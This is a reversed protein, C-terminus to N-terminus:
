QSKIMLRTFRKKQYKTAKMKKNSRLFGEKELCSQRYILL